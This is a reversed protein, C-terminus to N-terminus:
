KLSSLPVTLRVLTGQGSAAPLIEGRGGIGALRRQINSLGNGTHHTGATKLGCGDDEIELVLMSSDLRLRLTVVKAAAHQIVNHLAEKGAMLLDHRIASPFVLAPLEEVVEFRCRVGAPVLFDEAYGYIYRAFKELTDNTPDVAWVAEDVQKAIGRSVSYVRELKARAVEPRDLAQEVQETLLGFLALSSGLDDHLDRAIRARERDLSHLRELRQSVMNRWVAFIMSGAALALIGWFWGQRTVPLPIGLEIRQEVGRQRDRLNIRWVYEGASSIGAVVCGTVEKLVPPIRSYLFLDGDRAGSDTLNIAMGSELSTVHAVEAAGCYIHLNSGILVPKSPTKDLETFCLHQSASPGLRPTTWSGEAVGLYRNDWFSWVAYRRKPDMGAKSFDLTVEQETTGPNWLLAITSHGWPRRVHSVLRPWDQGTGIDIVETSERAPPTLVEVNRWYPQFSAWHLPDSTFATGCSLGVMSMRTRVLPWGGTVQSINSIDTGVYYSDDDVAFWLNNLHYSRLAEVMVPRLEQRVTYWSNRCSDVMGVAARDPRDKLCMLYADEGAAQRVVAFSARVAEFRTQKESNLYGAESSAVKLYTFGSKVAKEVLKANQEHSPGLELRIGPRAGISAIRRAYDVLEDPPDTGGNLSNILHQFDADLQVVGPALRGKSKAVADVVGRVDDGPSKNELLNWSHWGSLAGKSTRAGHTQAVWGAWLAMAPRPKGMLLAVQQGWRTEGSDVRTGSMDATFDFMIQGGGKSGIRANAYAIPTGVPGFVFGTGDPRYLGGCESVDLTEQLPGLPIVPTPDVGNDLRTVLWGDPGDPLRFEAAMPTVSLLKLPDKGVNRIGAQVLVGPMGPIGSLRFILDVQQSGFRFTTQTVEAKGYPTTEAAPKESDVRKGNASSLVLVSDGKQITAAFGSRFDALGPAAM